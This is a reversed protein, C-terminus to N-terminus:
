SGWASSPTKSEAWILDWGFLRQQLTRIMTEKRPCWRQSRVHCQKLDWCCWCHRLAWRESLSVAISANGGPFTISVIALIWCSFFVFLLYVILFLLMFTATIYCITVNCLASADTIYMVLPVLYYFLWYAFWPLSSQFVMIVVFWMWSILWIVNCYLPM